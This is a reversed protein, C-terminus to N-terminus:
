DTTIGNEYVKRIIEDIMEDVIDEDYDSMELNNSLIDYIDDVIHDPNYDDACDGDMDKYYDVIEDVINSHRGGSLCGMTDGLIIDVINNIAGANICLIKDEDEDVEVIVTHCSGNCECPKQEKLVLNLIDVGYEKNIFAVCKKYLEVATPRVGEGIITIEGKKCASEVLAMAKALGSVNKM